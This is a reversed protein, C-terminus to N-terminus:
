VRFRSVAAQLNRAYAALRETEGATEDVVGLNEETMQAINELNRSIDNSAGSQERVATAIDEVGSNAETVTEKARVLVTSLADAHEGSSGLAQHGSSMAREVHQSQEELSRTVGDIDSAARSSKEALKRVEDAVVAFGRGAEGARAAEIAANLALLNTQDAIDKVQRTLDTIAHTSQMFSNVSKATLDFAARVRVIEEQLRHLATSGEETNSLSLRATKSVSAASDSISQISVSLEQMAAALATITESQRASGDRVKGADEDLTRSSESVRNAELLVSQVASQFNAILSNFAEATQAIEDHGTSTVRQTLDGSKLNDAGSRIATVSAVTAKQIVFSLVLTIGISLAVVIVLLSRAQASLTKAAEFADSSLKDELRTLADVPAALKEFEQQAINMVPVATAYDVKAIDLVDAVQKKYTKLQKDVQEILQREESHLNNKKLWDSLGNEATALHQLIINSIKELQDIPYNASASALLEFTMSYSRQMLGVTSSIKKAHEFRTEYFDVITDQQRQMGKYAVGALILLFALVVIPVLLFKAGIRLRNLWQM